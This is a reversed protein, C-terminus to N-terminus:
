KSNIMKRLEEFPMDGFAAIRDGRFTCSYKMTAPSGTFFIIQGDGYSTNERQSYGEQRLEDGVKYFFKVNPSQKLIESIIAKYRDGEKEYRALVIVSASNIQKELPWAHFGNLEAENSTISQTTSDPMSATIRKAIVPPFLAGMLSVAINILILVALVWVAVTLRRISIESRQHPDTMTQRVNNLPFFTHIKTRGTPRSSGKQSFRPPSLREWVSLLKGPTIAFDLGPARLVLPASWALGPCRGPSVHPLGKTKLIPRCDDEGIGGMTKFAGPIM